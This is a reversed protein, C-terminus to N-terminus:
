MKTDILSNTNNSYTVKKRGVHEPTSRNSQNGSLASQARSRAPSSSATRGFYLEGVSGTHAGSRARRSDVRPAPYVHLKENLDKRWFIVVMKPGFACLITGTAAVMNTISSFVYLIPGKILYWGPYFTCFTLTYITLAYALHKAEHFKQFKPISMVKYAAVTTVLCLATLYSVCMLRLVNGATSNVCTGYIQMRSEYYKDLRPPTSTVWIVSLIVPISVIAVGLAYLRWSRILALKRQNTNPKAMLKWIRLIKLLLTASASTYILYFYIPMFRCTMNSPKSIQIFNFVYSLLCEFLLLVNLYLGTDKIVPTHYHKITIVIVFVTSLICLSTLVVIGIGWGKYFRLYMLPVEDCQNHDLNAIFGKPCATCASSANTFSVKDGTCAICEWLCKGSLSQWTGPGCVDGCAGRPKGGKPWIIKTDIIELNRHFNESWTGVNLFKVKGDNGQIFNVIDYTALIRGEKSFNIFGTLGLFSTNKLALLVDKPRLESLPKGCSKPSWLANRSSCRLASDLAHAVGYVADRVYAAKRFLLPNHFIFESLTESGNCRQLRNSGTLKGSITCNYHEKWVEDWWLKNRVSSNLGRLHEQLGPFNVEKLTFGLSGQIVPLYDSVELYNSETWGESAIWTKMTVNQALAEKLVRVAHPALCYLVYIDIQPRQKLQSIIGKIAQEPDYVPFLERLAICINQKKAEQVFSEVGSRGYPDDVGIVAVCKWENHAIIDVMAKSQFNDPPVTRFFAEYNSKDSLVTSTSGYSVQPLDVLQLMNALNISVTTFDGGILATVTSFPKEISETENFGLNARNVITPQCHNGVRFKSDFKMSNEFVFDGALEMATRVNGCSDFIRYGLTINPLLTSNKNIEEISHIMAETWVIADRQLNICEGNNREMHVPFLGALVVDGRVYLGNDHLMSKTESNKKNEYANAICFVSLLFCAMLLDSSLFAKRKVTRNINM